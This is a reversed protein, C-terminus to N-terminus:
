QGDLLYRADELRTEFQRYFDQEADFPKRYFNQLIYLNLNRPSDTGQSEAVLREADELFYHWDTVFKEYQRPSPTDIWKQM